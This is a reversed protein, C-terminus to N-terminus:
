RPRCATSPGGIPASAFEEILLPGDRRTFRVKAALDPVIGNPFGLRRLTDSSRSAFSIGAVLPDLDPVEYTAAVLAEHDQVRERIWAKVNSLGRQEYARAHIFDCDSFGSDAAFAEVAVDAEGANLATLFRGILAVREDTSPHDACPGLLQGADGVAVCRPMSVAPPLGISSPTSSPPTGTTTGDPSSRPGTGSCSVVLALAGWGAVTIWCSRHRPPSPIAKSSVYTGGLSRGGVSPRPENHEALAGKM